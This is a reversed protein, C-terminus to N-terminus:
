LLQHQVFNQGLLKLINIYIVNKAVIARQLKDALNIIKKDVADM